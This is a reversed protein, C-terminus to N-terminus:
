RVRRIADMVVSCQNALMLKNFTRSTEQDNSRKAEQWIDSWELCNKVVLSDLKAVNGSRMDLAVIDQDLKEIRDNFLMWSGAVGLVGGFITAVVVIILTEIKM